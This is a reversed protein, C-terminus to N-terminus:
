EQKNKEELVKKVIKTAKMQITNPSVDLGACIKVLTFGLAKRKGNEIESVTSYHLDARHALEEISMGKKNRIARIEKGTIELIRDHLEDGTMSLGRKRGNDLPSFIHVM